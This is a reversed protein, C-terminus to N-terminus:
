VSCSGGTNDHQASPSADGLNKAASLIVINSPLAGASGDGQEASGFALRRRSEESDSLIVPPASVHAVVLM